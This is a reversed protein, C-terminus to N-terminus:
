NNATARSSDDATMSAPAGLLGHAQLERRVISRVYESPRCAARSALTEVATREIPNLRFAITATRGVRDM